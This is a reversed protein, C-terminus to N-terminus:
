SAYTRLINQEEPSLMDFMDQFGPKQAAEAFFGKLYNLSEDDATRMSSDALFGMLQQQTLGTGELGGSGGTSEVDEWDDDEDGSELDALGAAALAKEESFNGGASSNLEEVLVKLIKINAPIITYTDPNKKAQSRTKIRGTEQVILDGKVQVQAVRPDNLLYVKTLAVVNQQIEEYGAFSTSNDLWKNLVVCLGSTGNIDMKALFDIVEHPSAISLRAFVLILNQIIQPQEATALRQAVATLLKDFFGGLQAAGAKEVLEAALGGIEAAAVDDVSSGLVHDIIRLATELASQGTQPNQYGLFQAPDNQLMFKVALTAPPLITQQTTNLLLHALRPYAIAVFGQPLPESGNEALARLLDAAIPALSNYAASTNIDLAGSLSPLVKECLKSYKESGAEAINQVIEDFTDIIVTALQLNTGTSGAINFLLEIATTDLVISPQVIVAGRLTDVIVFKLEDSDLMQNFDHTNVYNSLTAIIRSQFPMLLEAPLGELFDQLARLCAVQVIESDDSEIMKITQDLFAVARQHYGQDGAKAISAATLYGRSRLLPQEQSICYHVFEDFATSAAAPITADSQSIDTLLRNVIYLAAEKLKWTSTGDSYISHIRHLLSSLVIDKLWENLKLIVDAACLRPTYMATVSTEESLFLNVDSDWLNKDEETIQAYGIIVKLVEPLWSSTAANDGAAKLQTELGTRVPPAKLLSQVLDLDELVLYDLTYPLNDADELRGQREDEIYMDCYVSQITSLETFVTTFLDFSLPTLLAPLVDRVGMFTKVIQLKMAVAGRYQEYAVSDEIEEEESPAPPLPAKMTALFFPVWPQLAQDLFQKAEARHEEMVIQLPDLCSKFVSIALARLTLKRNDQTAVNFVTTIIDRAVTIFQDESCSGVLDRLVTLAGHLQVDSGTPILQLLTPLLDPWEEPFDASAITSVVYSATTKIKREDIANGTALELLTSRVLSKNAKSLLVEGMFGDLNPSWAETVFKRLVLLASQRITVPFGSQSAITALSLPLLENAYLQRLTNEANKRTDLKPSQTDALLQALQQEM